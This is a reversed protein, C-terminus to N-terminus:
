PERLGFQDSGSDVVAIETVLQHYSEPHADYFFSFQEFATEGAEDESDANVFYTKRVVAQVTVAFKM